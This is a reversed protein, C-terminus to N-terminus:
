RNSSDAEVHVVSPLLLVTLLTARVMTVIAVDEVSVAWQQETTSRRVECM